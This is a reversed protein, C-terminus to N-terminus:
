KSHYPLDSELKTSKGRVNQSGMLIRMDISAPVGNGLFVPRGLRVNRRQTEAVGAFFKNCQGDLHTILADLGPAKNELKSKGNTDRFGQKCTEYYSNQEDLLPTSPSQVTLYQHLWSNIMAGQIYELVDAHNFNSEKARSESSTTSIPDAAQREIEQHLWASYASFQRLESGVAKLINHALLQLCNSTDLVKELEHTSLGLAINSSQFKSLGRLRSILVSVRELAPLLNEHTLRRVNEYGTCVM